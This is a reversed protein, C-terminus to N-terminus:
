RRRKQRRRKRRQKNSLRKSRQKIKGPMGGGMMGGSAMQKAFAMRDRTGMGAMQKMMGAAQNFSKVLGSVDQPQMGCGRAIRRRRSAEIMDPNDREAQTMSQIIAEMKTFEDGSIM